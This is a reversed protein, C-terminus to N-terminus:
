FKPPEMSDLLGGEEYLAKIKEILKTNYFERVVEEALAKNDKAAREEEELEFNISYEFELTLFDKKKDEEEEIKGLIKIYIKFNDVYNDNEKGRTATVFLEQNIKANSDFGIRSDREFNQKRLLFRTIKM